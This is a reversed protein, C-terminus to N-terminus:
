QRNGTRPTLWLCLGLGLCLSLWAMAQPNLPEGVWRAVGALVLVAACIRVEGSAHSAALAGRGFALSGFLSAPLLYLWVPFDRYRPDAFLLVAAVAAAFLTVERALRLLRLAPGFPQFRALALPTALAIATLAGLVTWELPNRYADLAHEVQFLGITGAAAGVATMAATRSWREAPAAAATCPLVSVVACLVAGGLLALMVPLMSNRERVPGALPFKAQLHQDLFGWHGGVTGELARKWPQDIAEILNYQWGRAHAEGVFGRIFRAQNVRSPLSGERQRGASPWGTEGIVVPKDFHASVRAYTEAVHAPADDVAVPHDEWFPLIHVTVRDVHEALAANAMWFEWVDAYTVPVRSSERAKALLAQMGALSQERRLLVENGVVLVDVVDAHTNAVAIARELEAANRADDAGIWAGLMVKLGFERAIAPVQDLGQDVSYLRVCASLPALAALDERIQAADIRLNADFPTHGPRRYPAYSVCQLREGAGLRLEPMSVPRTQVWALGLMAATLLLHVVLLRRWPISHADSESHKTSPSDSPPAM